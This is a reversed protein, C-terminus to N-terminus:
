LSNAPIISNKRAPMRETWPEMFVVFLIRIDRQQIVGVNSGFSAIVQM